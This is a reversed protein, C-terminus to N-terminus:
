VIKHADLVFVKSKIIEARDFVHIYNKRKILAMKQFLEFRIQRTSSNPKQSLCARSCLLLSM